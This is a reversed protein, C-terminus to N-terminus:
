GNSAVFVDVVNGGPHATVNALTFTVANITAMFPGICPLNTTASMANAKIKYSKKAYLCVYQGTANGAFNAIDLSMETTGSGLSFRYYKGVPFSAEVKLPVLIREEGGALLRIQGDFKAKVGM